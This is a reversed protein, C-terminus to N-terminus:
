VEKKKLYIIGQLIFLGCVILGAISRPGTIDNVPKGMIVDYRLIFIAGIIGAAMFAIAKNKINM